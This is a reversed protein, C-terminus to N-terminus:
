IFIYICKYVYIYTNYLVLGNRLLPLVLLCLRNLAAGLTTNGLHVVSVVLNMYIYIYIYVYTYM